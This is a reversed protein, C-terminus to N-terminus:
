RKINPSVLKTGVVIDKAQVWEDGVRIEHDPTCRIVEGNSLELEVCEECCDYEHLGIVPKMEGSLTIVMDGMGVDEIDKEGNETTVKNGPLFCGRGPGVLVGLSKGRNVIDRVNIFYESFDLDNIVKLEMELRERSVEEMDTGRRKKNFGEEVLNRLTISRNSLPRGRPFDTKECKNRLKITNEVIDDIDKESLSTIHAISEKIEDENKMYYGDGEFASGFNKAEMDYQFREKYIDKYITHALADEKKIYHSDTTPIMPIDLKRAMAVLRNYCDVEDIFELGHYQLEVYFDDGFVEKYEKLFEEAKDDMGYRLYYLVEGSACATAVVLGDKNEFLTEKTILPRDYYSEHSNYIAFLSKLGEQNKAVCLIHFYKVAHESKEIGKDKTGKWLTPDSPKMYFECGPIFQLGTSEQAKYAKIFAGLDGHDTIVFADNGFSKNVEAIEIPEPLADKKSFVSHCHFNLYSM